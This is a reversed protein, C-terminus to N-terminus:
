VVHRLTRADELIQPISNFISSLLCFVLIAFVKITEDVRCRKKTMYKKKRKKIQDNITEFHPEQLTFFFVLM